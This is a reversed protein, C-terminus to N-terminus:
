RFASMLPMLADTTLVASAGADVAAKIFLRGDVKTGPLAVFLDGAKVARSDVTMGSIEVDGAVTAGGLLQALTLAM